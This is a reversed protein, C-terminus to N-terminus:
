IFTESFHKLFFLSTYIIYQAVINLVNNFM